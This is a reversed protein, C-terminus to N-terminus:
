SVNSNNISRKSFCENYLSSADWLLRFRFRPLGGRFGGGTVEVVANCGLSGGPMMDVVCASPSVGSSSRHATHKLSSAELVLLM